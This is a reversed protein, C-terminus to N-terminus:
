MFGLRVTLGDLLGDVYDRPVEQVAGGVIITERMEYFTSIRLALWNKLKAPIGAQQGAEDEPSGVAPYGCRFGIRVNSPGGNTSPWSLGQLPTVRGPQSGTDVNFMSPSGSLEQQAGGGDLYRIYSVSILPAFPMEIPESSCPLEDMLLELDRQIFARGTIEEARERAAAILLDIITDQDTIDSDVRCWTKALARSVPEYAPANVIRVNRVIERVATM